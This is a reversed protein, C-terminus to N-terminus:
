DNRREKFYQESKVSRIFDEVDRLSRTRRMEPLATLIDQYYRNGPTAREDLVAIVCTDTETRIARGFGQKLKVQMEPVASAEIYSHLDDYRRREFESAADPYPFPLRPFILLSVCDGPFDMGEWLAGTGLLVSGPDDRFQNAAYEANGGAAYLTWHLDKKILLEKVASLAAYSTFLTLAHGNAAELLGMIEDALKEFYDPAKLRPPTLPFYLICNKEYDFPSGSVFEETRWFNLLGAAERFKTFDDGIALTGSVLLVSDSPNWILDRFQQSLDPLAAGLATGKRESKTVYAMKEAGDSNCFFSVKALLSELQTRAPKSLENGVTKQIRRLANEPAFLLHAYRTFSADEQPPADLAKLISTSAASLLQAALIYREKKLRRVMSRIDNAELSLDLMQRATEPLKHAEDIIVACNEPFIPRYGLSRRIADALLLNHNCIQFLYPTADCDDLFDLYRCRTRDCQCVRPVQLLKRDYSRIHGAEDMDVETQLRRLGDKQKSPRKSMQKLRWELQKDCVYHSKGKRIVSLANLDIEWGDQSLIEALQPIYSKHLETQLTISSTSIILPRFKKGISSRHRLFVFAAALYAYTKGIGTGADCLTIKGDLMADLLRHSLAIQEERVAMGSAPFLDRFIHDIRQHLKEGHM